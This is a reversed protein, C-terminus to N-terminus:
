LKLHKRILNVRVLIRQNLIKITKIDMIWKKILILMQNVIQHTQPM